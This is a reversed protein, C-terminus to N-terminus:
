LASRYIERCDDMRLVKFSGFAEGKNQQLTPLLGEIDGESVGLEGLTSPMGLSTFFRQTAEIARRADANADETPQIGFVERGYLAFREPNEAYVYRMWAPFLVALGAGHVITPDFASLEHELGHTAWDERRGCGAIGCHALMGTWMINARAEYDHPEEMVRPAHSCITKMLGLIMNDTVSVTPSESFFRELLHAFMDTCGAATQYPPLSMTLEPDMFSVRPRLLPNNMSSKLGLEDNSIVTFKSAESGAAPITLVVALPVASDLPVCGRGEHSYLDWVDGDYPVGAAVAKASDIVSGGGVAIIFDIGEQRVTAIARRVLGVEPNPRVGGLEVSEIGAADLSEIVTDLLGSSKVSGQGYHVLVKRAGLEKLKAGVQEEVGRGFVFDTPACFEFNEM